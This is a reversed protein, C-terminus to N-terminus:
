MSGIGARTGDLHLPRAGSRRVDALSPGRTTWPAPRVAEGAAHRAEPRLTAARNEGFRSAAVSRWRDPARAQRGEICRPSWSIWGDEVIWDVPGDRQVPGPVWVWRDRWAWGGDHSTVWGIPDASSAIWVWGVEDSWAWFGDLYPQYDASSPYFVMGYTADPEWRGHDALFAIHVETTHHQYVRALEEYRHDDFTADHYIHGDYRDFAYSEYLEGYDFASSWGEPEQVGGGHLMAIQLNSGYRPACAAASLSLALLILTSRSVDVEPSHM